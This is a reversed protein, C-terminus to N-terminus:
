RSEMTWKGPVRFIKGAADIRYFGAFETRVTGGFSNTADVWGQVFYTGEKPGTVNKSYSQWGFDASAPNKLTAEVRKQADLWITLKRGDERREKEKRAAEAKGEPSAARARAKKASDKISKDVMNFCGTCVFLSLGGAVVFIAVAAAPILIIPNMDRWFRSQARHPPRTKKPPSRPPSRPPVVPAFKKHNPVRALEGCKPCPLSHGIKKASANLRSGCAPCTFVTSM